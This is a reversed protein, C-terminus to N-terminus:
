KKIFKHRAMATDKQLVLFYTGNALKSIDIYNDKISFNFIRQGQVDHIVTIVENLELNSTYLKEASPNPYILSNDLEYETISLTSGEVITHTQNIAPNNITDVTGSPWYITMQTIATDSGLGFHATLSSMFKFGDGSRIDRIQTGLSSTIEIRAGIGNRNSQVGVTNIKIWNNNNGKNLNVFNGLIDLFGDNNLDGVPGQTIPPNYQTFNFNQNNKYISNATMIDLYGDNDFDHTVVEIGTSTNNDFASGATINTFTGDNNNRMIKHGGDDHSNAIIVIDMDGDNDYDGWASSWAQIPDRLNSPISVDTFTGDGNNRHLENYKADTNGGRCKAIFLDMDRDNDYDVWISGYNGGTAVDGMGGQNYNLIGQGNNLYYVNPAVDHCVFADLNGDNNIDIFNNRQSFVYQAGTIETYATGNNNARLFTVGTSSGYLLDNYGNNDYDGAAMSWTPLHTVNPTPVDVPNFGGNALQYHINIAQPGVSVIDDLYDNNLDVVGIKYNTAPTTYTVATFDFPTTVTAGTRLEFDFGNTEWKNDFAFYYQVGAQANFTFEALINTPPNVDDNGGICTLNGCTGTYVNLRTDRGANTPLNTTITISQNTTNLYSYWEASTASGTTACVPNPAETGDIVPVTYIGPNISVATACTNQAYSTVMCLCTCLYIYFQKM